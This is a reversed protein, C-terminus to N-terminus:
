VRAALAGLTVLVAPAYAFALRRRPLPREGALLVTALLAAIETWLHYRLEAAVSFVFYATGYLFSSLALPVILRARRTGRGAIATGLAVAIWVIPWGLPTHATGVAVADIARLM